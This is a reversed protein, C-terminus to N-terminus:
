KNYQKMNQEFMSPSFFSPLFSNRISNFLLIALLSSFDPTQYGLPVVKSFEMGEMLVKKPWDFKKEQNGIGFQINHFFSRSLNIPLYQLLRFDFGRSSECMMKRGGRAFIFIKEGREPRRAPSREKSVNRLFSFCEVTGSYWSYKELLIDLTTQNAISYWKSKWAVFHNHQILSRFFNKLSQM